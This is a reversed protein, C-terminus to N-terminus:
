LRDLLLRFVTLGDRPRRGSQHAARNAFEGYCCVAVLFRRDSPSFAATLAIYDRLATGPPDADGAGKAGGSLAGLLNVMAFGPSFARGHLRRLQDGVEFQKATILACTLYYDLPESYVRVSSTIDRRKAEGARVVAGDAIRTFTVGEPDSPEPRLPAAGTDRAVGDRGVQAIVPPAPALTVPKAKKKPKPAM